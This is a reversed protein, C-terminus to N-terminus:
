EILSFVKQIHLKLFQMDKADMVHAKDWIELSSHDFHDMLPKALSEYEKASLLEDQFGHTLFIDCPNKKPTKLLLDQRFIAGSMGFFGKIKNPYNMIYELGLVSGQSFGVFYINSVGQNTVEEILRDLMLLSRELGDHHKPPREYWSRGEFGSETTWTDPANLLLYNISDLKLRHRIRRMGFYTDGRGHLAIVLNSSENKAPIFQFDNYSTELNM